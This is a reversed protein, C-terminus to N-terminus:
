SMAHTGACPPPFGYGLPDPTPSPWVLFCHPVSSHQTGSQSPPATRRFYTPPHCRYAGAPSGIRSSGLSEMREAPSHSDSVTLIGATGAVFLFGDLLVVKTNVLSSSVNVGAHRALYRGNNGSHRFHLFNHAHLASGVTFLITRANGVLGRHRPRKVWQHVAKWVPFPPVAASSIWKRIDRRQKIWLYSRDRM